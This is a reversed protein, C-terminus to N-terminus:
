KIQLNQRQIIEAGPVIAGDKIAEKIRSKNPHPLPHEMFQEPILKEDTIEVAESKRFSITIFPDVIREIGLQRMADSLRNKLLEKSKRAKARVGELRKIEAEITDGWSELHKIMLAVDSGEKILREETFQLAQDIEPTIEGEAEEIMGLLQFYQQRINYLENNPYM